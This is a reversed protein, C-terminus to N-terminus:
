GAVGYSPLGMGVMSSEDTIAYQPLVEEEDQYRTNDTLNQAFAWQLMKWADGRGPSRGLREKIDKKDEIQILGRNNEFFEEEMLDEILEIDKPNVGAKGMHGRERSIFSAEARMNQYIPRVKENSGVAGADVNVSSPASGHFKIMEIGRTFAEPLKTLETYTEIGIGDCDVIIFKGKIERCMDVAKIAKESASMVAKAFDALVEGGRGALFVNDDVGEGAPDVAVGANDSHIALMGHRGTMMNILQLPFTNSITIDPIQGLVRGIWRPDDSGWKIRKDEVWEYSALGPIVERREIYNPNELCSFHLVINREKDRLGAAFRGKARTPNGIFIVLCNQSTTVADIQDFINDEVAQAESVIVCISPSHFGQFKGGASEASAGTEKTTFGILFWDEKRIEIYPNTYAKGWLKIKKSNWKSLTEGWMIKKVQRDTPATQIVKSPTYCDLFWHSIAATIYDKGLSHGSAVYIHKHEAIARPCADLMQNQLDWVNTIGLAQKLYLRPNPKWQGILKKVDETLKSNQPLTM